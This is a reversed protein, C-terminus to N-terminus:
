QLSNRGPMSIATYDWSPLTKEGLGIAYVILSWPVILGQGDTVGAKDKKLCSGKKGLM